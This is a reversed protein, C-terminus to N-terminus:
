QLEFLIPVNYRVKVAKGAQKGPKWKPMSRIVRLAENDLAADVGRVLSVNKINGTEDIVFSVYVKGQIGNGQAVVPYNVHTGLYNLLARDGGPFLPMEEAFLLIEEVQDIENKTPAISFGNLDFINDDTSEDEFAVFEEDIEANNDVLIFSPVEIKQPPPEKKEAQTPPIYVFDDQVFTTNEWELAARPPSKWQFAFLIFGLAFVLGILFFVGKKNELNAKESKKNKM